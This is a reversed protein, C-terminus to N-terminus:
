SEDKDGEHVHGNKFRGWMAEMEEFSKPPETSILEGCIHCRFWALGNLMDVAMEHKPKKEM